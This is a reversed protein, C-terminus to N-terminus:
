IAQLASWNNRVLVFKLVQFCTTKPIKGQFIFSLILKNGKSASFLMVVALTLLFMRRSVCLSTWMKLHQVAGFSIRFLEVWWLRIIFSAPLHSGIYLLKVCLFPVVTTMFTQFPFLWSEVIVRCARVCGSKKKVHGYINLSMGMEINVTVMSISFKYALFCCMSRHTTKWCILM